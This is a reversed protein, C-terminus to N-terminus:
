SSRRTALFPINTIGNFNTYWTDDEIFLSNGYCKALMSMISQDHRHDKFLKDPNISNYNDTFLLPDDNLIRLVESFFGRTGENNKMIIITAMIQVKNDDNVVFNYKNKFYNHTETNTYEFENHPNIVFRLMDKNEKELMVIYQYLRNKASETNMITCGGDMYVLYENEPLQQLTNHIIYPKWIWYGAGRGCSLITSFKNKFNDDLDKDTFVRHREFWKCEQMQNQLKQKKNLYPGSVYSICNIKVNEM